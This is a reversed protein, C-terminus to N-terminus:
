CSSSVADGLDGIAAGVAKVGDVVQALADVSPAAAAARISSQLSAAQTRVDDIQSSYQASADAKLQKLDSEVNSLDTKVASLGNDSINADKLKQVSANLSDMDDCVAPQGGCAALGAGLVVLSLATVAARRTRTM